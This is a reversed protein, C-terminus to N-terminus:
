ARAHATYSRGTRLTLTRHRVLDTVRVIGRAVSVTSSRCADATTWVTGEVSTAVYQGRTDFGGATEAVTIHRRTPGRAERAARAVRGHGPGRCGTLPETLTFTTVGDPAQTILFRGGSVTVTASQGPTRRAVTFTVSGHGAEVESGVPISGSSALVTFGHAGALRVLVRGGSVRALVSHALVPRPPAESSMVPPIGSGKPAGGPPGSEAQFAFVWVAGADTHEYPASALATSADSSLAASAGFASDTSEGAATLKERASWAEASRTFVWVAGKSANDGGGGILAENGDADLSVADGFFGHPGIEGPGSLKAGQQSWSEGSRQFAWAAGAEESDYPGGILASAGDASIAVSWGFRAKGSEEPGGTLKPGQRSWTEGSRTFVWAAGASEDEALAGILATDGNVSLSISSGFAGSGEEESGATLKKGQQTWAEGSRTFVWVAGVGGNEASAGILATNGDGSLAVTGFEAATEEEAGGTLKKGQQSWKGASRVFVWAAGTYSNDVWGGILATNGDGSLAVSEGFEGKGVEEAGGTLKPGQQAWTTGTRTFVWAAGRGEGDGSEPLEGDGSGAGVLATQGNESLAVSYGLYGEGEEEAGGDLQEGQQLFPDIQLPYRAGRTDVHISLYGGRVTLWSPLRRGGAGTALLGVYRILRRGGRSLTLARGDGSLSAALDGSLAMSVVIPAARAGAPARSLTIGQEIGLPGNAYWESLGGRRYSVRNPTRSPSPRLSESSPGGHGVTAPGIGLWAGAARVSVGRSGFAVRLHQARNVASLGGPGVSVRYSSDAAGLTASVPGQAAEPLSALGRRPAPGLGAHPGYRAAATPHHPQQALVAAAALMATLTMLGAAIARRLTPPRVAGRPGYHEADVWIGITREGEPDSASRGNQRFPAPSHPQIM